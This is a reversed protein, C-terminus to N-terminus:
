KKTKVLLKVYEELLAEWVVVQGYRTIILERAQSKLRKYLNLDEVLRQMANQLEKTDKPPIIIGNEGEIIIENCGIIDSVISPLNMAGAQMVVNPFGERYSPFVLADSVAFYPRVDDQFGVTIINPNNEIEDITERDLPDLRSEYPGVLLLKVNRTIPEIKVVKKIEPQSNVEIWNQSIDSDTLSIIERSVGPISSLINDPIDTNDGTDNSCYAKFAHVLEKIGKDAVLRGVFIFVFSHEPIGLQKKLFQNQQYTYFEPNFFSTDIGNTSGNALLKVKEKKVYSNELIFRELGKSNPYVKSACYYTIKEVSELVKKKFGNAEMLPMGAVTHLRIPVNTIKAALMGLIGAKPTHTHVIVPHEKKFFLILKFLAFLDKLPTIQRSMSVKHVEVGEDEIICKIDNGPSSIGIVEFGKSKMYGLQGKLLIKLSQPVTTIRLLKVRPM